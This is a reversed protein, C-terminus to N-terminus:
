SGQFAPKIPVPGVSPLVIHFRTGEGPFSTVDIRGGHRDIIGHVISLGLGSGEGVAKTTFFPDFIRSAVEPSMGPGNDIVDLEITDGVPMARVTIVGGKEGMAQAANTMLNMLVQDLQGAFGMLVLGPDLERRVEIGQLRHRLLDVADNVSRSFDVQTVAQDDGRSYNHLARVIARTRDAGRRIVQLIERAEASVKEHAEATQAQKFEDLQDELPSLSNIVANVPNNIEHAIGAVLRGMSALKESRVLDDKAKELQELAERLETNRRELAETRRRVERELDINISETSRLRDRLARRMEEFAMTLRGIEDAEGAPPVPRALEGQAMDRSRGGLTAIPVVVEQALLRMLVIVLGGGVLVLLGAGALSTARIVLGFFGVSLLVLGSFSSLLKANLGLPSVTTDIPLQHRSSLHRLLPSLARRQFLVGYMFAPLVAVLAIFLTQGSQTVKWDWLVRVSATALLLVFGLVMIQYLGLRYPLAQATIFAPVASAEDRALGRTRPASLWVDLYRVMPASRRHVSRIWAFTAVALVPLAMSVFHALDSSTGTKTASFGLVFVLLGGGTVLGAIRITRGVFRRRFLKMGDIRPLVRARASALLTEFILSRVSAIWLAVWLFAAATGVATGPSLRRDALLLAVSVLGTVFWALSRLVATELPLRVFVQEVLAEEEAERVRGSEPERDARLLLRSADLMRAATAVVLAAGLVAGTSVARSTGSVGALMAYGVGLFGVAEVLTSVLEYGVLRRGLQGPPLLARTSFASDASTVSM